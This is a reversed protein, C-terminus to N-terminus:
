DEFINFDLARRGSNEVAPRLYPQAAVFTLGDRAVHGNEVAAGYDAGVEVEAEFEGTRRATITSALNGSRKPARQVAETVIEEAGTMVLRSARRRSKAAINEWNNHVVIWKVTGM